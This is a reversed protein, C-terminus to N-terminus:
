VSADGQPGAGTELGPTNEAIWRREATDMRRVVSWLLEANDEDLQHKEAYLTVKDWPIPGDSTRCTSLDRYAELLFGTGEPM